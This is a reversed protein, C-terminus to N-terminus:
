KSEVPVGYVTFKISVKASDQDISKINPLMLIPDDAHGAEIIHATLSIQLDKIALNGIDEGEIENGSKSAFNAKAMASQFGRMLDSIRVPVLELQKYKISESIQKELNEISKTVIQLQNYVENNEEPQNEADDTTEAM